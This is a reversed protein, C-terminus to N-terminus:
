RSRKPTWVSSTPQLAQELRRDVLGELGAEEYRDIYRRFTRGCVGLLLAAEEATRDTEDPVEEAGM